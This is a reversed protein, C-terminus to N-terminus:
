KDAKMVETRKLVLRMTNANKKANKTIKTMMPKLLEQIM